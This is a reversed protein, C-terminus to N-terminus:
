SLLMKEPMKSHLESRICMMFFIKNTSKTITRVPPLAVAWDLDFPPTQTQASLSPDPDMIADCVPPDTNGMVFAATLRMWCIAVLLRRVSVDLTTRSVQGCVPSFM